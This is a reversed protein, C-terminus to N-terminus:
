TSSRNDKICFWFDVGTKIQKRRKLTMGELAKKTGCGAAAGAAGLGAAKGAAIIAPTAAALPM